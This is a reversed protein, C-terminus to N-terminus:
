DGGCSSEEYFVAQLSDNRFFFLPGITNAVSNYFLFCEQEFAAIGLKKKVTSKPIGYSFGNEIKFNSGVIWYDTVYEGSETIIGNDYVKLRLTDNSCSPAPRFSCTCTVVNSNLVKKDFLYKWQVIRTNKNRIEPSCYNKRGVMRRWEARLSDIGEKAQQCKSQQAFSNIFFVVIVYLM